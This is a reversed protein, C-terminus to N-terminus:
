GRPLLLLLRPATALLAALVGLTVLLALPRVTRARRAEPHRPVTADRPMRLSSVKLAAPVLVAALVGGLLAYRWTATLKTTSTLAHGGALLGAALGTWAHLRRGGALRLAPPIWPERTVVALLLATAALVGLLVHIPMMWGLYDLTFPDSGIMVAVHGVVLLLAADGTLRHAVFRRSTTAWAPSPTARFDLFLAALGAYGLAAAIEWAPEYWVAPPALLAVLLGVLLGLGFRDFPAAM